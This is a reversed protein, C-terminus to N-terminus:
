RYTINYIQFGKTKDSVNKKNYVVRFKNGSAALTEKKVLVQVVAPNANTAPIPVYTKGNIYLYAEDAGDIYSGTISFQVDKQNGIQSMQYESSVSYNPHKGLDEVMTVYNLKPQSKDWLFVKVSGDESGAPHYIMNRYVLSRAEPTTMVNKFYYDAILWVRNNGELLKSLGGITRGSPENKEDFNKYKKEKTDYYRQRFQHVEQGELYFDIAHPVTCMIVDGEKLNNKVYNTSHKWNIFSWKTLKNSVVYGVKKKALVLDKMEVWRVNYLSLLILLITTIPIIIKHGASIKNKLFYVISYVSQAICIIALPLLFIIYRPLSPERYIYSMLFFPIVLFSVFFTGHRYSYLFSSILGIPILWYLLKLDYSLVDTYINFVDHPDKAYLEGLRTFNPLVFDIVKQPLTLQLVSKAIGSSFPLLAIIIGTFIPIGTLAYVNKFTPISKTKLNLLFLFFFYIGLGFVFFFSLTHSFFSFLFAGLLILLKKFNHNGFYKHIIPDKGFLKFNSILLVLLLLFSFEFISYNRSMRSWFVLYLSFTHIIASILGIQQNYMKKGLVYILYTSATGFLVSPLRLVWEHPGFLYLLFYIIGTLTIGNNEGTIISSGSLADRAANFHIYEDVWLDLSSINLIRLIFSITVCFVVGIFVSRNQNNISNLGDFRKGLSLWKKSKSSKKKRILKKTNKQPRSKKKHAKKKV